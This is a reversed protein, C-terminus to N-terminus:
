CSRRPRRWRIMVTPSRADWRRMRVFGVRLQEPDGEGTLAATTAWIAGFGDFRSSRRDLDELEPGSLPARPYGETTQDAWVFVLRSADRYPLPEILLANVVSFIVTNAAVGLALTAIAALAFGPSKGLVRWAHVLDRPADVIAM